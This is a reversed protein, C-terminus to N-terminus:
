LHTLRGNEWLLKQGSREYISKVVYGLTYAYIEETDDSLPTNIWELMFKTVHLSEHPITDVASTKALICFIGETYSQWDTVRAREPGPVYKKMGEVFKEPVKSLRGTSKLMKVVEEGTLGYTVMFGTKLLPIYIDIINPIKTHKKNAM